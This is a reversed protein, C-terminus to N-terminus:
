NFVENSCAFVQAYKGRRQHLATADALLFTRLILEKPVEM